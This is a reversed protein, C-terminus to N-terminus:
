RNSSIKFLIGSFFSNLRVYLFFNTLLFFFHLLFFSSLMLSIWKEQKQIKMQTYLLGTQISPHYPVFRCCGMLLFGGLRICRCRIIDVKVNLYMRYKIIDLHWWRIILVYYPLGKIWKILVYGRCCREM